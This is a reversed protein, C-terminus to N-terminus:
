NNRIIYHFIATLEIEYGNFGSGKNLPLANFIMATTEM